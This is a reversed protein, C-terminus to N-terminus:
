IALSAGPKRLPPIPSAQQLRRQRNPQSGIDSLYERARRRATAAGKKDGSRERARAIVEWNGSLLRRQGTALANSRKAFEVAQEANGLQLKLVALRHWLWPNRPEIALARELTAAAQEGRGADAQAKAQRLL